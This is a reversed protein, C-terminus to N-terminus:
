KSYNEITEKVLIDSLEPIGGFIKGVLAIKCGEELVEIRSLAEYLSDGVSFAGHNKLLVINTQTFAKVLKRVSDEGVASFDVAVLNRVFMIYESTPTKPIYGASVMGVAVSPHAHVIAQVDKRSRYISLHNITETSCKPGKIIHGDSLDIKVIENPQINIKDVHSPTALIFNGERSVVSVNGGVCSVLGRSYLRKMIECIEYRYKSEDFM